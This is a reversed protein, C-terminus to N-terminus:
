NDNKCYILCQEVPGARVTACVCVFVDHLTFLSMCNQPEEPFNHPCIKRDQRNTSNESACQIM